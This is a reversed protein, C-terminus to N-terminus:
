DHESNHILFASIEQAEARLCCGGGAKQRAEKRVEEQHARLNKRQSIRPYQELADAEIQGEKVADIVRGTYQSCRYDGCPSIFARFQCQGELCGERLWRLAAQRTASCVANQM